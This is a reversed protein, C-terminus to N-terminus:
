IEIIEVKSNHKLTKEDYSIGLLLVKTDNRLYAKSTKKNNNFRDTSYGGNFVVGECIPAVCTYARPYSIEGTIPNEKKNKVPLM